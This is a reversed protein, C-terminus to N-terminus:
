GDNWRGGTLELVKQGNEGETDSLTRRRGGCERTNSHDHHSATKTSTLSSCANHRGDEVSHCTEEM